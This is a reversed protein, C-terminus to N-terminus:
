PLNTLSMPSVFDKLTQKKIEQKTSGSFFKPTVEIDIPSKLRTAEHIIKNTHVPKYGKERDLSWTIHYSSGDPRKTTGNIEVLLGEIGTNDNVYGVVKASTPQKPTEDPDSVGFKETIHHGLFETYQPPFINRLKNRSNESLEYGTYM